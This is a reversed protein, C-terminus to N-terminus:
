VILENKLASNWIADQWGPTRQSALRSAVLLGNYGLMEAFDEFMLTAKPKNANVESIKTDSWGRGYEFDPLQEAPRNPFLQAM